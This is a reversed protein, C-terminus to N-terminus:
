DVFDLIPEQAIAELNVAKLLNEWEAKLEEDEPNEIRSEALKTLPEYWIGTQEYFAVGQESIEQELEVRQVWGNVHIPTTM